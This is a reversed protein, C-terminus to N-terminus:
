RNGLHRSELPLWIELLLRAQPATYRVRADMRQSAADAELRELNVGCYTTPPVNSASPEVMASKIQALLELARAIHREVGVPSGVRAKVGAAALKILCKLWCATTGQRGAALWLSEWAEHAEWYYGHNFLDVGFLYRQSARWQSPDLLPSRREVSGRMHGKPDSLPHPSEGPVYSYPPFRHMSYRPRAASGFLDSSAARSSM